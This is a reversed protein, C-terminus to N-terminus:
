ALSLLNIKQPSIAAAAIAQFTAERCQLGFSLFDTSRSTMAASVNGATVPASRCWTMSRAAARRGPDDELYVHCVNASGATKSSSLLSSRQADAGTIKRRVAEVESLGASLKFAVDGLTAILPRTTALAGPSAVIAVAITAARALRKIASHMSSGM